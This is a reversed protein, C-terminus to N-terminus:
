RAQRTTLWAKWRDNGKGQLSVGHQPSTAVTVKVTSLIGEHAIQVNMEQNVRGAVLQQLQKASRILVDDIAVLQDGVQTVLRLPSGYHYSLIHVTGSGDRLNVGLWGENAKDSAHPALRLRFFRLAHEINPLARHKVLRDLFPGMGSGGPCSKLTSRIDRYEVGLDTAEPSTLSFRRVVEAMLDCAGYTNQNRRRLEVDLCLMALEGELYYSIQSERTYPGSRYLHIWADHSSEALSERHMGNAQTHRKMKREFDLRWDEETWAGSRVCIMDGLWSTGGEFWWLLDTHTESQLDYELFCKPRLRKVNWQHLYEHSFLSVLDRYDEEHKPFLSQRPVMSTQSNMHELGGRGTETLHLVTTYRPWDPVGFLAHHERIIREMDELFAQLREQNPAHGGSDWWKLQHPRGDVVHVIAPNANVEIISDLMMDRGVTSFSWTTTDGHQVGDDQADLQTAPTWASPSTLTVIHTQKLRQIDIGKEPWFWTFPPMLHLHTADLHNSRVSLENAFLCYSIHVSTTAKRVTVTIGDVDVRKWNLSTGEQDVAEFDFMHQIPERLFYSGPVWRPFRLLLKTGTFPGEVTVGAILRHERGNTADAHFSLGSTGTSM